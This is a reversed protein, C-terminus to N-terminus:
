GGKPQSRRKGKTQAARQRENRQDGIFVRGGGQSIQQEKEIIAGASVRRDGFRGVEHRRKPHPKGIM